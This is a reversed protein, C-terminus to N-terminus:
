ADAYTEGYGFDVGIPCGSISVGRDRELCDRVLRIYSQVHDERVEAVISDHVLAFIDADLKHMQIEDYADMAGLLNADSAVSQILFNIGSRVDHSKLGKDAGFVNLLRRKRGFASYIFGNKSIFEAQSDLWGRLKNFKRFYQKISDKAVDLSCGAQEAIKDPGAGYMIGFSVSKAQQRKGPYKETVYTKRDTVDEPVYLEFVMIAVETHFDGGSRFVEQLNTDKSLVAAYYM